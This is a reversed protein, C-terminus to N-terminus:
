RQIGRPSYQVTVGQLTHPESYASYSYLLLAFNLGTGDIYVNASSVDQGDWVFADWADVDWIGGGASVDFTQQESGAKSGYDFECSVKIETEVITDLELSLKRIRKKQQPSSLHNYHTRLIAEIEDGDFSNGKDLQYVYGSSDGFFLVENGSSDESSCCCTPTDDFLIRTFGLVSGGDMTMYIAQGDDFFLRYQNKARVAMSCVVNDTKDKLYPEIAASITSSAFDGYQDTTELIAIGRDDFSVLKNEVIQNTWEIAGATLSHPQL